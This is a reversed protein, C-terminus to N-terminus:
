TADNGENCPAFLGLEFNRGTCVYRFTTVHAQNFVDKYRIDGYVYFARISTRILEHVDGPPEDSEEDVNATKGPALNFASQEHSGPPLDFSPVVDCPPFAQVTRATCGYAPTQGGNTFEIKLTMRGDRRFRKASTPLVYARLQKETAAKTFGIQCILTILQLVAVLALLGTFVMLWLDTTAKQNGQDAVQASEKQSQPAEIQAAASVAVRPPAQNSEANRGGSGAHNQPQSQTEGGSPSPRNSSQVARASLAVFLTLFAVPLARM